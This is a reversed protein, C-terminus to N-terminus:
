RNTIKAEDCKECKYMQLKDKSPNLKRRTEGEVIYAVFEYTKLVLQGKCEACKLGEDSMVM